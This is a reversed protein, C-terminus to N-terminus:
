DDDEGQTTDQIATRLAGETISKVFKLALEHVCEKPANDACVCDIQRVVAWLKAVQKREFALEPRLREVEAKLAANERKAERLERRWALMNLSEDSM